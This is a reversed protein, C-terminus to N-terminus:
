SLARKTVIVQTVDDDSRRLRRPRVFKPRKAIATYQERKNPVSAASKERGDDSRKPRM